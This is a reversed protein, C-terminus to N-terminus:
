NVSSRISFRAPSLFWKSGLTESTGKSNKRTRCLFYIASPYAFIQRYSGQELIDLYHSMTEENMEFASLLLSGLLRDRQRRVWDQRGVEIPSGWLAIEPDGITVGWWRSIRQRCAVRSAVRRKGIDFILPDGTSGGTAFSSLKGAIDSRLEARYTRIVAKTMIPTIGLDRAERIDSPRLRLESFTRRIYPVHTYCYDVFHRLKQGCLCDLGTASLRDPVEMERLIELTRHGKLSEHLPFLVNWVFWRNM